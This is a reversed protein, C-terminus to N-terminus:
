RDRCPDSVLTFEVGQKKLVEILTATPSGFHIGQPPTGSPDLARSAVGIVAGCSDLLPGGESGRGVTASHMIAQVTVGGTRPVKVVRGMTGSKLKAKPEDDCCTQGPHSLLFMNAGGEPMAKTLVMAPQDLKYVSLVAQDQAVSLWLIKAPHLKKGAKGPPQVYLKGSLKGAGELNRGATVVHGEDSIVFGSGLVTKHGKADVRIVRVVGAMLSELDPEPDACGALILIAAAAPLLGSLRRFASM